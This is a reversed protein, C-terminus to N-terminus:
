AFAGAEMHRIRWAPESLVQADHSVMVMTIGREENLGRLLEMLEARSRPDLSSTPEDLLLLQPDQCLCRALSLKQKEGGSLRAYMRGRLDSCGVAAMAEEIRRRRDARRLGLTATGIEVVERASIPFDVQVSEQNVYGVRRRGRAWERSGVEQGLVLVRGAAAKMMGLVAKLLTTKGAGNPGAVILREGCAVQLSVDRLIRTGERDLCLGDIRICPEAM